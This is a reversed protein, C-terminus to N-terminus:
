KQSLFYNKNWFQEAAGNFRQNIYTYTPQFHRALSEKTKVSLDSTKPSANCSENFDPKQLDEDIFEKFKDFTLNNFLNEFFGFFIDKTEFAKDLAQVTYEYRTKHSTRQNSLFRLLSEEVDLPKKIGKTLEYRRRMRKESWIREVPDRMLFVVKVNFGRSILNNKIDILASASLLSYSPTIDAVLRTNPSSSILNDFYDFYTKPEYVFLLRRAFDAKLSKKKETSSDILKIKNIWKNVWESYQAVYICDFTHYEKTFGPDFFTNKCLQAHLWTTGAKQAGVGLIFTKSTKSM